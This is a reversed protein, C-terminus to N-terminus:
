VTNTLEALSEVDYYKRTGDRPRGGAVALENMVDDFDESGLVGIVYTPIGSASLAQLESVSDPEDICALHADIFGTTDTSCCNTEEDCLLTEGGIALVSGYRSHSCTSAECRIEDNCNPAGDTILVIATQDEFSLLTPALTHLTPSLPTGGHAELRNIQKVFSNLVPGGPPLNVCKIPDGTQVPFAESGPACGYPSTEVNMGPFTTLGYKSRHGIEAAVTSLASKAADLKTADGTPIYDLMSGSTDLVFYIIPKKRFLPVTEEACATSTDPTPPPECTPI